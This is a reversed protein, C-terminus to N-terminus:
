VLLNIVTLAELACPVALFFFRKTALRPMNDPEGGKSKKRERRAREGEEKERERRGERESEEGTGKKRELHKGLM